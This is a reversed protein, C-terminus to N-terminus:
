GRTNARVRRNRIYPMTMKRSVWEKERHTCPSSCGNKCAQKSVPQPVQNKRRRDSQYTQELGKKGEQKNKGAPIKKETHPYAKLSGGKERGWESVERKKPQSIQSGRPRGSRRAGCSKGWRRREKKKKGEKKKREQLVQDSLSEDRRGRSRDNGITSQRGLLQGIAYLLLECWVRQNRVETEIVVNKSGTAYNFNSGVKGGGMHIVSRKKGGTLAHSPRKTHLTPHTGATKRVPRTNKKKTYCVM